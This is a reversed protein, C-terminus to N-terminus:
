WDGGHCFWRMADDQPTRLAEQRQRDAVLAAGVHSCAKGYTGAHCTCSVRGTVSYLRVIHVSGDHTRSPVQYLAEEVLGQGMYHARHILHHQDALAVARAEWEVRTIATRTKTATATAM